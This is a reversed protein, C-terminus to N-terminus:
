KGYCPLFGKMASRIAASYSQSNWIMRSAMYLTSFGFRVTRCATSSKKKTKKMSDYKRRGDRLIPHHMEESADPRKMAFLMINTLIQEPVNTAVM